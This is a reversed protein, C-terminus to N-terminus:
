EKRYTKYIKEAKKILHQYFRQENKGKKDGGILLIYSSNNMNDLTFNMIIGGLGESFLGM